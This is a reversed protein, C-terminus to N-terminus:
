VLLSGTHAKLARAARLHSTDEGDDDKDEAKGRDSRKLWKGKGKDGAEGEGGPGLVEVGGAGALLRVDSLISSVQQHLLFLALLKTNLLSMGSTATSQEARQDGAQDRDLDMPAGDDDAPGVDLDM